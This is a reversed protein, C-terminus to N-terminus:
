EEVEKVKPLYKDALDKLCYPCYGYREGNPLFLWFTEGCMVRGCKECKYKTWEVYNPDTNLYLCGEDKADITMDPEAAFCPSSLLCLLIILKKM